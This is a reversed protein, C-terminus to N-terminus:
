LEWRRVYTLSVKRFYYVRIWPSARMTTVDEGAICCVLGIIHFWFDPYKCRMVEALRLAEELRYANGAEVVAKAEPMGVWGRVEEYEHFEIKFCADVYENGTISAVAKIQKYKSEIIGM